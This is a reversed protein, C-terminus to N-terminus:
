VALGVVESSKDVPRVRQAEADDEVDHVVVQAGVAVVELLEGIRVEGIAVRVLPPLRDVEVALPRARHALEDERVGCVPDLLIVKVPEPQVRGLLDVVGGRLVDQGREAAAHAARRPLARRQQHRFVLRLVDAEHSRERCAAVAEVGEPVVVEVV